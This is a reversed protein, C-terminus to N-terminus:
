EWTNGHTGPFGLGNWIWELDMGVIVETVTRHCMQTKTVVMRHSMHSRQSEHRHSGQSVVGTVSGQSEHSKKTVEKHSRQSEHKHSMETVEKHSMGTVNRHSM